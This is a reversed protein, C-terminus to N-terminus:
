CRAPLRSVSVSAGPFARVPLVGEEVKGGADTFVLRGFSNRALQFNCSPM